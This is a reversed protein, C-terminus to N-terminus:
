TAYSIPQRGPQQLQTGTDTVSLDQADVFLTDGPATAPPGADLSLATGALASTHVADSGSGLRVALTAIANYTLSGGPAFFQDGGAAGVQTSTITVTRDTTDGTDDISVQDGLGSGNINVDGLISDLSGAGLFTHSGGPGAN